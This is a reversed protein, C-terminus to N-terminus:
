HVPMLFCVEQTCVALLTGDRSFIRSHALVRGSHASSTSGLMLLWEDVKASGPNCFHVTHNLTTLVRFDSPPSTRFDAAISNGRTSRLDYPSDKQSAGVKPEGLGMQLNLLRGPTDLIYHDSLFALGAHHMRQGAESSISDTKFWQRTKNDEVNGSDPGSSTLLQEM